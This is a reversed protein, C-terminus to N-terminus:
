ITYTWTVCSRDSQKIYISFGPPDGEESNCGRIEGTIENAAFTVAYYAEGKEDNGVALYIYYDNADFGEEKAKDLAILLFQTSLKDLYAVPEYSIIM